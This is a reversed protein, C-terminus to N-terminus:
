FLSINNGAVFNLFGSNLPSGHLVNSTAIASAPLSTFPLAILLLSPAAFVIPQTSYVTNANAVVFQGRLTVANLLMEGQSCQNGIFQILAGTAEIMPTNVTGDMSNGLVRMRLTQNEWPGNVNLNMGIGANGFLQNDQVTLDNQVEWLIIAGDFPPIARGAKCNLVTNRSVRSMQLIATSVTAIGSQAMGSILNDEVVLRGLNGAVFIGHGQGGQLRNGIVEFSSESEVLGLPALTILGNSTAETGTGDIKNKQVRGSSCTLAIGLGSCRIANNEFVGDVCHCRVGMGKVNMTNREVVHNAPLLTGLNKGPPTSFWSVGAQTCFEFSSDSIVIDGSIIGLRADVGPQCLVGTFFTFFLEHHIKVLAVLGLSNLSAGTQTIAQLVNDIVKGGSTAFGASELARDLLPAITKQFTSLPLFTLGYFGLWVNSDCVFDVLLGVQMWGAYIGAILNGTVRIVLGDVVLLALLSLIQNDRIRAASLFIAMMGLLGTILNEAVTVRAGSLLVIAAGQFAMGAPGTTLVTMVTQQFTDITNRNLEGAQLTKITQADLGLLRNAIIDCDETRVLFISSLLALIRNERIRIQNANSRVAAISSVDMSSVTTANGLALRFTVVATENAVVTVSQSATKFGQFSASLNYNGAPLSSFAFQGKPDTVARETIGGPGTSVVTAGALPVGGRDLLGLVTGSIGGVGTSVGSTGSVIAKAAILTNREIQTDFCTELLEIARGSLNIEAAARFGLFASFPAASINLNILATDRVACFESSTIRVMSQASRAVAFFSELTVHSTKQIDFLVRSGAQADPAFILKTAWGMGRIIINSKSAGIAIGDTIIFM